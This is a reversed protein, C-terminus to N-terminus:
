MAIAGILNSGRRVVLTRVIIRIIKCLNWLLRIKMESYAVNMNLFLTMQELVIMKIQNQITEKALHHNAEAQAIIKPEFAPAVAQQITKIQIKVSSHHNRINKLFM